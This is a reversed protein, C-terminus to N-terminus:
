KEAPVAKYGDFPWRTPKDSMHCECVHYVFDHTENMDMGLLRVAPWKRCQEDRSKEDHGPEDAYVCLDDIDLLRPRLKGLYPRDDIENLIVVDGSQRRNSMTPRKFLGM